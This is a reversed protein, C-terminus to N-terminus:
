DLRGFLLRANGAGSGPFPLNDARTSFIFCHGDASVHPPSSDADGSAGSADESLRRTQSRVTDFVYSSTRAQGSIADLDNDASAYLVYRGDPSLGGSQSAAEAEQGRAGVNIRSVTNTLRDYLFVDDLGNRDGLVLNDAQSYGSLYRGDDSMGLVFSNGNPEGLGNAPSIRTTSNALGDFLFIDFAGNADGPLLADSQSHFSVFRGDASVHAHNGSVVNRQQDGPGMSIRRTSGTSLDTLFVDWADNEDDLTLDSAVSSFVVYRGDSSLDRAISRGNAAVGDLGRSVLHPARSRRDYVFVDSVSNGDDASLNSAESTILVRQGDTSLGSIRSSGNAPAGNLGPSALETVGSRLSYLLVNTRVAANDQTADFAVTSADESFHPSTLNLESSGPFILETLADPCCSPTCTTNLRPRNPQAPPMKPMSATGGSSVFEGGGGSGPDKERENPVHTFGGAASPTIPSNGFMGGTPHTMGASGGTFGVLDDQDSESESVRGFCAAVLLPMMLLPRFSHRM